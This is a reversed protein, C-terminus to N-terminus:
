PMIGWHFSRRRKRGKNRKSGKIRQQVADVEDRTLDVGRSRKRASELKEELHAWAEPSPNKGPRGCRGRRASRGLRQALERLEARTPFGDEARTRAKVGSRVKIGAVSSVGKGM